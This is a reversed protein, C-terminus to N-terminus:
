ECQNGCDCQCLWLRVKGKCGNDKTRGWNGSPGVVVLRGFRKGTIDEARAIQRASAKEAFMCGCSVTRGSELDAGVVTKEVGCVCRCLFRRKGADTREVVERVVTLRGFVRGNFSQGTVKLPTALIEEPTKGAQLRAY